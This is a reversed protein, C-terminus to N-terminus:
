STITVLRVSSAANRPPLWRAPTLAALDDHNTMRPLRTLVDRLYRYPDKGHRQCSVVM